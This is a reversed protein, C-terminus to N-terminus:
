VVRRKMAEMRQALIEREEKLRLQKEKQAQKVTFRTRRQRWDHYLDPGFRIALLAILVMWTAAFWITRPWNRVDAAWIAVAWLSPFLQHVLALIALVLLLELCALGVRPTYLTVRGTKTPQYKV